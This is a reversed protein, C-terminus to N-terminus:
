GYTLPIGYTEEYITQWTKENATCMAKANERVSLTPDPRIAPAIHITYAQRPYGEEDLQDTDEMTIFFPLVPVRNEAAFRFAGPKLPRPKRYNWWLSQEPYILIKEKRETLLVQIAHTIERWGAISSALPLTNCHRFFFGYLGPFGTYNGERIVKYLRRRGLPKEIAKFVAYNDYPHFHNATIIVGEKDVALYNELGRVERIILQKKRIKHDFYTKAIRNALETQWRTKWKSQLYDVTGPLLPPAPPDEEADRDFIGQKEYEQIRKLVQQRYNSKGM